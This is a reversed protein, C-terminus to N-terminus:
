TEETRGHGKNYCHCCVNKRKSKRSYRGTSEFPRLCFQCFPQSLFESTDAYNKKKRFYNEEQLLNNEFFITVLRAIINEKLATVQEEVPIKHSVLREIAFQTQAHSHVFLIQLQHMEQQIAEVMELLLTKMEQHITKLM